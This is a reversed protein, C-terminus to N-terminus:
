LTEYYQKEEESMDRYEVRFEVGRAILLMIRGIMAQKDHYETHFLRRGEKYALIFVTRVIQGELPKVEKETDKAM